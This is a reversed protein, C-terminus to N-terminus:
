AAASQWLVYMDGDVFGIGIGKSNRLVSSRAGSSIYSNVMEMSTSLWEQWDSGAVAFPIEFIDEGTTFTEAGPWYDKEPDNGPVFTETGVLQVHM